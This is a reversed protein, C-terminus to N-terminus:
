AASDPISIEMYEVRSQPVSISVLDEIMVNLHLRLDAEMNRQTKEGTDGMAICDPLDPSYASYNEKVKETVISFRHM